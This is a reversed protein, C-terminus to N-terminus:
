QNAQFQFFVNDPGAALPRTVSVQKNTTGTEGVSFGNSATTAGGQLGEAVTLWEGATLNTSM